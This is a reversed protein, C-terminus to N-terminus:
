FMCLRVDLQQRVTLFEAANRMLMGLYNQATHAVCVQPRSNKTTEILFSHTPTATVTKCALLLVGSERQAIDKPV